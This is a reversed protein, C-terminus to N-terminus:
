IHILSLKAQPRQQPRAPLTRLPQEVPQQVLPLDLPPLRLVPAEVPPVEVPPAEVPLDVDLKGPQAAVPALGLVLSMACVGVTVAAM